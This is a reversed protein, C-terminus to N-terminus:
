ESKYTEQGNIKVVIKAEKWFLDRVAQELARYRKDMFDNAEQNITLEYTFLTLSDESSTGIRYDLKAEKLENFFIYPFNGLNKEHAKTIRGTMLVMRNLEEMPIM